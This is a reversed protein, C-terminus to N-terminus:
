NYGPNQPELNPNLILENLPIPLLIHADRWNSKISSIVDIALGWRKLDFWRHGHECFLESKREQIIINELNDGTTIPTLGARLRIQNIDEIASYINGMELQAEARILYMESLRLVISYEKPSGTLDYRTYKNNMYWTQNGDSIDKIWYQRRLDGEEFGEVFLTSLANSPPPGVEFYFFSAENTYFGERNELQLIVSKSEQLFENRIDAELQYISNNIVESAYIEASHWDRNYLFIRALLASVAYKNARIREVSVYNESIKSHAELLDNVLNQTVVSKQTRTLEMNFQYDTSTTYPVDGFMELLYFYILSRIFLTEARLQNQLDSSLNNSLALGELISNCNYIISYANNWIFNVLQNEPLIQHNYFLEIQSSPQGHFDLEDSYLGMLVGLGGQGGTFFSDERLKTYLSTVTGIATTEDDFILEQPIEGITDDIELFDQCSLQLFLSIIVLFCFPLGNSYRNNKM